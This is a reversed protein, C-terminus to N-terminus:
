RRRGWLLYGAAVFQSAAILAAGQAHGYVVLLVVAVLVLAFAILDVWRKGNM